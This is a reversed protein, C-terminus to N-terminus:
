KLFGRSKLTEKQEELAKHHAIIREAEAYTEAAAEFKCSCRVGFPRAAILKDHTITLEHKM